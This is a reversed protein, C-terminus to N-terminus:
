RDVKEYRVRVGSVSENQAFLRAKADYRILLEKPSLWRLDVWPGGWPASSAAGHNTDTVFVNGAGTPAGDRATVSVQSSFATTAGCDRQFLVAKLDGTPADATSVAMNQCADSCGTVLAAFLTFVASKGM